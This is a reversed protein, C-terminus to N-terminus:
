RRKVRTLRITSSHASLAASVPETITQRAASAAGSSANAAPQTRNEAAPRTKLEAVNAAPAPQPTSKGAESKQLNNKRILM